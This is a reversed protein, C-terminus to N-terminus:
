QHFEIAHISLNFSTPVGSNILFGVHSIVSSTLTPANPILRGKVSAQFDSFKFVHTELATSKTDTDANNNTMFDIKYGQEYGMVTAKMRLQYRNGDGAVKITILNLNEPLSPLAQFVSTFGGNNDKSIVGSFVVVDNVLEVNGTSLGGMVSDNTIYCENNDQNPKFMVPVKNSM